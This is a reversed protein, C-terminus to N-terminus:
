PHSSTRGSAIKEKRGSPQSLDKEVISSVTLDLDMGEAADPRCAAQVIWMGDRATDLLYLYPILDELPIKHLEMSVSEERYKQDIDKQSPRMSKIYPRVGISDSSEQLYSLLNFTEARNEFGRAEIERTLEQYRRELVSLEALRRTTSSITAKLRENYNVLPMICWQYGAVALIGALALSLWTNKIYKKM